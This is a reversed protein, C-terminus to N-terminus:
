DLSISFPAVTPTAAAYYGTFKVKLGAVANDSFELEQSEASMANSLTFTMERGDLGLGVLVLENYASSDIRGVTWTISTTGATTVKVVWADLGHDRTLPVDFELGTGSPGLTGKTAIQRIEYHGYDGIRVYDGVIFPAVADVKIM